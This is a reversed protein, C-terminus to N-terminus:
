RVWTLAIRRSKSSGIPSVGSSLAEQKRWAIADVPREAEARDLCTM